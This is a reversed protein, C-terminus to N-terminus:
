RPQTPRAPAPSPSPSASRPGNSWGAPRGTARTAPTPTCSRWSTTSATPASTNPVHPSLESASLPANLSAHFAASAGSEFMPESQTSAPRTAFSAPVFPASSTSSPPRTPQISASPELALNPANRWTSSLYAALEAPREKSKPSFASLISTMDGRVGPLTTRNAGAGTVVASHLGLASRAWDLVPDWRDNQREVLGQPGDARYCLLDSSAFRVIDELVAQQDASVGDIATNVLRLVPMKVPDITETQADFEAAVLRAAAEAPLALLAKGPTRVPRGDLKVAFGDDSPEVSVSKYFRKPLPTRALAQARRVPDPDSLMKGAELDNLIDRM